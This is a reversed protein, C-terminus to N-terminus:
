PRSQPLLEAAAATQAITLGGSKRIAGKIHQSVAAGDCRIRTQGIQHAPLFFKRSVFKYLVENVVISHGEGSEALRKLERRLTPSRMDVTKQRGSQCQAYLKTQGNATTM